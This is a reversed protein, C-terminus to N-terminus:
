SFTVQEQLTSFLDHIIHINQSLQGKQFYESVSALEESDKEQKRQMKWQIDPETIGANENINIKMITKNKLLKQSFKKKM